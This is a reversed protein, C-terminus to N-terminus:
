ATKKKARLLMFGLIGAALSAVLVGTKAVDLEEGDGFALNAIFLSMTFGIGCLCAVGYIQKWGADKPMEAMGLKVSLWAFLTIGLQKGIVLGAIIGLAVPEALTKLSDAGLVVGANALAFVPMVFFAVWPHLNRELRALPTEVRECAEELMAVAHTQDRTFDEPDPRVDADFTELIDRGRQVFKRPDLRRRAPIALAGLVGAVTAHVGSELIAVWLFFGMIAYVLPYRVGARNAGIMLLLIGAGGLLAVVSVDSTYFVAIVLVAGLDDAIALAALFVRLSAPIGKGLLALVGLAFAIDTAVPVGWGRVSPSGANFAFYILAPVIMGGLAAAMPLAAQKLTSLEGTLVERKIELGIVFFFVSMLGDNIWHHLSKYMSFDGVTFGLEVHWLDFYSDGWPSNAWVLALVTCALLLISGSAQKELFKLFPRVLARAAREMPKENTM